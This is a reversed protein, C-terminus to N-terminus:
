SVMKDLLQSSRQDQVGSSYAAPSVRLANLIHRRAMESWALSAREDLYARIGDFMQPTEFLFCIALARITHLRGRDHYSALVSERRASISHFRVVNSASVVHEGTIIGYDRGCSKGQGTLGAESKGRVRSTLTIIAEM